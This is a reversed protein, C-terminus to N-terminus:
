LTDSRLVSFGFTALQTPGPPIQWAAPPPLLDEQTWPVPPPAAMVAGDPLQVVTAGAPPQALHM